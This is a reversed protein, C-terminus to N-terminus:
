LPIGAYKPISKLIETESRYTRSVNNESHSKEGEAGRKSFLVVALEIQDYDYKSSLESVDNKFPYIHNIIKQKAYDLYAILTDDNFATDFDNSSETLMIKMNKLKQETTM